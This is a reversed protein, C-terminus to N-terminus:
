DTRRHADVPARFCCRTKWKRDSLFYDGFTWRVEERITWGIVESLITSTINDVPAILRAFSGDFMLVLLGVGMM